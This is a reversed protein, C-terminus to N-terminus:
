YRMSRIFLITLLLSYLRGGAATDLFKTWAAHGEVKVFQVGETAVAEVVMIYLPLAVQIYFLKNSGKTCPWMDPPTGETHRRSNYCM